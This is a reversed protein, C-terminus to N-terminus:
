KEEERKGEAVIGLEERGRGGKRRAGREKGGERGGEKMGNNKRSHLKNLESCKRRRNKM